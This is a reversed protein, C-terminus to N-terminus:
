GSRARQIAALGILTSALLVTAAGSAPSGPWLSVLFTCLAGYGMQGFGYLGSAAGIMNPQVGIASSLALPSVTGSGICFVLVPALVAVVSLRDALELAMFGAAGATAVLSCVIMIRIPEIRRVLRNALLAGISFGLIPVVFYFGIEAQPRHLKDVFIFPAAALFAYFGTTSCAGGIAYRRFEAMGLLRVYSALLGGGRGRGQNTERLHLFTFWLTVAGLAALFVFIARWGFWASGLGGVLPAMAPGISMFLNLLALAAAAERPASVDRLVARGLVLGSCGGLAQVVRAVILLGVNPAVASAVSAATYLSIGLLLAPRRGIRDSLPGWFLQGVAVGILYLTLTLEITADSVGLDRAAVPLAPVFIHMGLTGSICLAMLLWLPPRAAGGGPPATLWTRV